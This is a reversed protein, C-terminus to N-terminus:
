FGYSWTFALSGDRDLQYGNVNTYVPQLWELSLRNGALSGNPVTASLGFGADVYQGGYSSPEDMPGSVTNPVSINRAEEGQEVDDPDFVGNCGSLPDPDTCNGDGDIDYYVPIAIPFIKSIRHTNFQHRVAGQVTYVGRVSASLWNFLNYSGWATTQFIDGLAYGSDNRNQLRKTGSLQAGWSWDDQQGSYTLSPKFDWTGSGLQMGYHMFEQESSQTAEPYKKSVSGTPASVGIATHLHHVPNNFLKVMAYMGTDGIGGSSHGQSAVSHHNHSGTDIPDPANHLGRLSMNMDMLQPMVMLTLWDTPAVMLELMHMNTNMETATFRCADTSPCGNDIIAQDGVAQTGHLIDGKELGYQYRYGVMVDGANDLMHDFMVGAPAHSGNHHGSHPASDASGGKLSLADLSVNLTANVTVYDFDAYSGEGRSGLQLSGAHQYYEGSVSLNLGKAFQKSITLGGSLTGYGSLRYDSSFNKIPLQSFDLQSGRPKTDDVVFADPGLLFVSNYFDAATQSYYRINPTLTWGWGVPQDWSGAFTHADIGWDDHFFSYDVHLAADLPEIYQVGGVNWSFQNRSDPRQEWVDTATANRLEIPNDPDAPNNYPVFDNGVSYLYVAKYPNELFGTNRTYNMNGHVLTSKSLVQSFGLNMAWDERDAKLPDNASTASTSHARPTRDITNFYGLGITSLDSSTYSLGLNVSTLKQNFDWRGNANVFRSHYDPEESVGGGIGLAMEDGEYSLKFDGQKRTEPSAIAFAHVTRNDVELTLFNVFNGQRDIGFNWDRAPSANSISDFGLSAIPGTAFPTAGGWTDQVYNFALKVRDTLSIKGNGSFSDVTIPKLNSHPTTPDKASPLFARARMGEEYYQYGFSVQDDEQAHSTSPMLGPLALAAATFAALPSPKTVQHHTTKRKNM